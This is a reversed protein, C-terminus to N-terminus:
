RRWLDISRHESWGVLVALMALALAPELLVGAGLGARALEFLVAQSISLLLFVCVLAAVEWPRRHPRAADGLLNFLPLLALVLYFAWTIPSALLGALTMLGLGGRLTLRTCALWATVLLVGVPLVWALDPLGLRPGLTWLSMNTPEAFFARSITPLVHLLYNSTSTVGIAVISLVGGIVVVGVATGLSRWERRWALVLVWPLAIPKILFTVGLLAGGLGTRKHLLALQAGALGLLLPLMLQGLGIELAVPPWAILALALLPVARARLHVGAGRLLLVVSALLCGLEIALWTRAAASYSLLGLPLALLGVTPPHPTPYPKDFYGSSVVYRAGLDRIPQYPDVRDLIARALLYEQSFDKDDITSDLAALDSALVLAGLAAALGFATLGVRRRLKSV